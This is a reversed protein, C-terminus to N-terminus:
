NQTWLYNIIESSIVHEKKFITQYQSTVAEKVELLLINFGLEILEVIEENSNFKELQSMSTFACFHTDEIEVENAIEEDNFIIPIEKHKNVLSNYCNAKRLLLGEAHRWLGFGSEPHEIRLLKM